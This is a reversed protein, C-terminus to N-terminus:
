RPLAEGHMRRVEVLDKYLDFGDQIGVEVGKSESTLLIRSIMDKSDEEFLPFVTEVLCTFPNVSSEHTLTAAHLDSVYTSSQVQGLIEPNKKYRKKVRDALKTIAKGLQIIHYFEWEDQVLPIENHLYERYVDQAKAKLGERLQISYRDLEDPSKSFQPDSYIHDKLILMVPSISPPKSEYCHQLTEYLDRLLTDHISSLIQRNLAFDAITWKEVDTLSSLPHHTNHAPKTNKPAEKVFNFAADLTDLDIDQDMYKERIVDLFLVMQSFPPIRWRLCLENLLDRSQKSLLNSSAEADPPRNQMDYSFAQQLVFRYWARPDPPIFTYSTDAGNGSLENNSDNLNLSSMDVPQDFVYSSNEMSPDSLRRSLELYVSEQSGSGNPQPSLQPLSGGPTSKALEPNSQVISLMMQSIDAIEAKKWTEFAEQLDFDDSNLTRKTNLNLNSSYAKLDAVIAKETWISKNKDIDSQVMTNTLGFIRAVTRVLPMDKVDNSLPVIVEVTTGGGGQQTPDTLNQDHVLLKNELTALRHALEARDSVWGHDKLTSSILRVFLAVHRDVMLKYSDDSAPKDKRLEKTAHSVFILVLDEVRRSKDVSSRFSKETFTNYFVAFTRKVVPDDYEPRRDKGTLVGTLRKELESLFGHPLRTSKSDRILSFDTM